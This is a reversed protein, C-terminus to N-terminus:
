RLRAALDALARSDPYAARAADLRRRAEASRGSRALALVAGIEPAPGQAGAERAKAFAALARDVDGLRDWAGGIAVWSEADRPGWREAWALADRAETSRGTAAAAAAFRGLYLPNEPQIEVARAYAAAAGAEDGRELLLDGLLAHYADVKPHAELTRRLFPEIRRPEGAERDLAQLRLAVHVLLPQAGLAREYLPRARAPDGSADALRGEIADRIAPSIRSAFREPLRKADDVRGARLYMEALWLLSEAEMRDPVRRYAEELAAAADDFRGDTARIEALMAFTKPLPERENALLLEREASALDGQKIYNVALNRHYFVQTQAAAEPAGAPASVKANAAPVSVDGGVYGLAKLNEMMAQLTEPDAEAPTARERRAGVLEYSRIRSPPRSRLLSPEIAEVILRGKMDEALPLGAAYLLTPTVDYLSARPLSAARFSPGHLVLIGWPRHWEAPQGTTYPPVDTPRDEGSRFGHDSLLVVDTDPGAADLLEGLRADQWAYYRPVAERFRASDADSAMAMKPPLYHQFRHGMMDPGEYYVAVFPNGERLLELAVAHYTRMAALLKVTFSLPEPPAKSDDGGREIPARRQADRFEEETLPFLSRVEDYRVASPPVLLHKRTALWDNPWVLSGRKAATDVGDRVVTFALLESVLVGRIPEPPFSAWWAIWASDRDFDGLINWLAKVKRFDSSIPRRQGSEPDKVLFDAIGHQTPPKGTAVSTWLLPSFMPDYSRLDARAGGRLLRALNPLRGDRLLPDLLEWDAGDWGVVLLRRARPARALARAEETRRRALVDDGLTSRVAVRDVTVGAGELAARMAGELLSPDSLLTEADLRGGADALVHAALEGLAGSSGRERLDTRFRPALSGTLRWDAEVEFGLKSGERTSLDVGEARVRAASPVVTARSWPPAFALGPPDVSGPRVGLHGDPIHQISSAALAVVVSVAGAVIWGRRTMRSM